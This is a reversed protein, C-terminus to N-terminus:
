IAHLVAPLAVTHRRRGVASFPLVSSVPLQEGLDLQSGLGPGTVRNVADTSLSISRSRVHRPVPPFPDITFDTGDGSASESQSPKSDDESGRRTLVTPELLVDRLLNLNRHGRPLPDGQLPVKREYADANSLSNLSGRAPNRTGRSGLPVVSTDTTGMFIGRDAFAKAHFRASLRSVSLTGTSFVTSPLTWLTLDASGNSDVKWGPFTVVVSGAPADAPLLVTWSFTPSSTTPGVLFDLVNTVGDDLTQAVV